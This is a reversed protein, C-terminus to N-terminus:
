LESSGRQVPASQRQAGLGMECVLLAARARNPPPSQEQPLGTGSHNSRTM